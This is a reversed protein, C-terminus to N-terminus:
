AAVKDKVAPLLLNWATQKMSAGSGFMSSDFRASDANDGSRSSRDHDVYRTVANLATWVTGKETGEAVTAKYADGLAEFQNMKRTSIDERKAEAPIDLLTKFYASVDATVMEVLAMADGIKKFETFGQAIAGLEAGVVAANFARNHNTKILARKDSLSAHLTNQCVVRTMTAQNVTAQTGDFSTSMLLRARHASGAVEIEGNYTATAWIKRGGDLSGAVDLAFRDDVGIYREFWALVDRPQVAKYSADSVYGLPRLTDDRTMYSWGPIREMEGNPLQHFAATRIASWQLGASAAWQDLSMGTQMETGLRHWIDNRDGIFAINARGNTMDIEHAM